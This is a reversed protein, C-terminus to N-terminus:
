EHDHRRKAAVRRHRITLSPSRGSCQSAGTPRLWFVPETVCCLSPCFRTDACSRKLIVHLSMVKPAPDSLSMVKQGM